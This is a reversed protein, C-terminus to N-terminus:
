RAKILDKWYDVLLSLAEEEKLGLRKAIINAALGLAEEVRDECLLEAKEMLAKEVEFYLPIRRKANPEVAKLTKKVSAMVEFLTRLAKNEELCKVAYDRAHRAAVGSLGESTVAIKLWGGYVEGTYPVVIETRSADTADNVWKRAARAYEWVLRNVEANDTAIVVIDAWEILERLKERAAMVDLRVLRIGNDAEAAERLKDTFDLAVVTVEAGGKRFWLARRTGVGGGGIVLVRKGELEVWLPVRL